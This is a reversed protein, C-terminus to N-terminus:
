VHVCKSNAAFTISCSKQFSINWNLKIKSSAYNSYCTKLTPFDSNRLYFSAVKKYSRTTPYNHSKLSKYFAVIEKALLENGEKVLHLNDSYFMSEHKIGMLSGYEVHIFQTQSVSELLSNIFSINWRMCFKKDCPLLLIIVVKAYNCQAQVSIGRLTLGSIIGEPSNHGVNNTGCLIFICSLTSNSLFKLNKIRWVLNQIKDGSIGFNLANHKSFYESWVDILLIHSPM